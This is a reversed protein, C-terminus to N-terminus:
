PTNKKVKARTDKAMMSPRSIVIVSQMNSLGSLGREFEGHEETRTGEDWIVTIMTRYPSDPRLYLSHDSAVQETLDRISGGQYWYKVEVILQLSPLCLDARPQYTGTSTVYKEEDVEPFIPKLVAYLLSQVHYENEIHWKRPEAGRRTTRPKKEWTWRLFIQSVNRLVRTVDSVSLAHLNLDLARGQAWDLAKLRLAAEFDDMAEDAEHMSEKLVDAALEDRICCVRRASLGAFLWIPSAETALPVGTSKSLVSHFLAVQWKWSATIQAFDKSLRTVWVIFREKLEASAAAEIGVFIGLLIVPDVLAGCPEGAADFNPKGTVWEAQKGFAERLAKENPHTACRFGLVALGRSSREGAKAGTAKAAVEDVVSTDELGLGLWESFAGLLANSKSASSVQYRLTGKADRLLVVSAEKVFVM